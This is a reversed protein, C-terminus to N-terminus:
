RHPSPRPERSGQPNFNTDTRVVLGWGLRPERSGQPNFNQWQRAWSNQMATSARSLRTSQFASALTSVLIHKLRPERSGQPNFHYPHVMSYFRFSDLSALAKHISINIHYSTVSEALDLSALAKHISIQTYIYLPQPSSLRPERSGQPNFHNKWPM